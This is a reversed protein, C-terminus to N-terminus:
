NRFRCITSSDPLEGQNPEFGTFVMFDLRVRLAHELATDSLGHWQGLLMLKFMGLPSYPEQGGAHSAERKYLGKLQAGLAAWNLLQHLKMCPSQAVLPLAEAMFFSSM